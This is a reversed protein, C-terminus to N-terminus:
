RAEPFFRYREIAMAEKDDHRPDDEVIKMLMTVIARANGREWHGNGLVVASRLIGAMAKILREKLVEPADTFRRGLPIGERVDGAQELAAAWFWHVPWRARNSDATPETLRRTILAESLLSELSFVLDTMSVVGRNRLWKSQMRVELRWVDRQRGEGTRAWCGSAEWLDLMWTKGSAEEIERGKDYVQIVLPSGHKGITLTELTTGKGWVEMSDASVHGRRKVESHAVVQEVLRPRMELTLDPAHFDFAYHAESVRDWDVRRSKGLSCLVKEARTRLKAYGHEWLGASSYRVSVPFDMSPSRIMISFDDHVLFAKVGRGRKACVQMAEEGLQLLSRGELDDSQAEASTRADELCEMVKDSLEIDFSEVVTDWGAAVLDARFEWASREPLTVAPLDRTVAGEFDVSTDGIGGILHNPTDALGFQGSLQSSNELM